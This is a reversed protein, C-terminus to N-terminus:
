FKFDLQLSVYEAGVGGGATEPNPLPDKPGMKLSAKKLYYGGLVSVNMMPVVQYSLKVEYNLTGYGSLRYDTSFTKHTLPITPFPSPGNTVNFTPAYFYAHNQSYYRVRGELEWGKPLPQYYSLSFMNSNLRWTDLGFRYDFHVSGKTWPVYQVFRFLPLFVSRHRPRKDIAVTFGAPILGHPFSSGPTFSSEGFPVLNKANGYFSSQKYSDQLYGQYYQYEGSLQIYNYKSLDQKLGLFYVQQSNKGKPRIFFGSQTPKIDEWAAGISTRLVTNNKNFYWEGRGAVAPVTIDNETSYFGLLTYKGHKTYYNTALSIQNLDQIITSGSRFDVIKLPTSTTPDITINPAPQYVSAGTETDRELNLRLEFDNIPVVVLAQWVNIKYRPGDENYFTYKLDTRIDKGNAWSLYNKKTPPADTSESDKADKSSSANDNDKAESSKSSKDNAETKVDKSDKAGKDDKTSADKGAAPSNNDETSQSKNQEDASKSTKDEEKGDKTGKEDKSPENKVAAQPDINNNSSTISQELQDQTAVVLQPRTGQEAMAIGPIALAATTLSTLMTKSLPSPM